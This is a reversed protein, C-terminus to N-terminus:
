KKILDSLGAEALRSEIETLKSRCAQMDELLPRLHWGNEPVREPRLYEVNGHAFHIAEQMQRLAIDVRSKIAAMEKRTAAYNVTLEGIAANVEDATM